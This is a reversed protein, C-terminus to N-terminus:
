YSYYTDLLNKLLITQLFILVIQFMMRVTVSDISSTMALLLSPVMLLFLTLMMKSKPKVEPMETINEEKKAM